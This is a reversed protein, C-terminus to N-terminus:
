DSRRVLPAGPLRELATNNELVLQALTSLALRLPTGSLGLRRTLAIEPLRAGSALDGAFVLERLGLTPKTTLSGAADGRPVPRTHM